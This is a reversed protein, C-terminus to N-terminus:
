FATLCAPPRDTIFLNDVVSIKSVDSIEAKGYDYLSRFRVAGLLLSSFDEVNMTVEVDHKAKADVTLKGNEFVAATSCNNIPLFTDRVNLKVRCSGGNFNHHACERLAAELHIIRYMAGVGTQHSQHYIPGLMQESGDRPDLPFFHFDPDSTRVVVKNIQDVQSRLYTFLASLAERTHYILEIGRMNNVLINNSHASEFRWGWYAEIKGNIEVGTCRVEPYFELRNRLNIENEDLLGNTTPYLRNYCELVQPLDDVGLMRVGAKSKGKPLDSPRISYVHIKGGHGFGMQYYFDPRFPWLVAWNAGKDRYYKLYFEVMEKAVAEKKHLLDVAVMSLGGAPVGKGFLNMTYDILRMTGILKDHRYLGWNSTRTDCATKHLRDLSKKRDEESVIKMGPYADAVIRVIEPWQDVPIQKIDSM